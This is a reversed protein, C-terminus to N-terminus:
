ALPADASDDPPGLLRWVAFAMLAAGAFLTWSLAPHLLVVGEVVTLLPALVYISAFRDPEFARVLWITLLSLPADVLAFLAGEHAWDEGSLRILLGYHPYGFALGVVGSGACIVVLACVLPVAALRRSLKVIAVACVIEAFIVTGLWGFGAPSDPPSFPLILAAGAVGALAAGAQPLRGDSAGFGAQMQAAVLVVVAPVATFLLSVMVPSVGTAASGALLRPAGLLITGWGAIELWRRWTSRPWQRLAFPLMWACLFANHVGFRLPLPLPDPLATEVIWASASILSFLVFGAWRWRSLM